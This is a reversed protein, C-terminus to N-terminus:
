EPIAPASLAAEDRQLLGTNLDLDDCIKRFEIRHISLVKSADGESIIDKHWLAALVAHDPDHGGWILYNGRCCHAWFLWSEPPENIKDDSVPPETGRLMAVLDALSIGRRLAQICNGVCQNIWRSQMDPDEEIMSM